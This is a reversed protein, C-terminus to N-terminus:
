FRPLGMLKGRVQDTIGDVIYADEAAGRNEFPLVALRVGGGEAAGAPGKIILVTVVSAWTGLALVGGLTANGWTFLRAFGPIAAGARRRSEMRGTVSLVVAGVALLAVALYLVWAPLGWGSEAGCRTWPGAWHM